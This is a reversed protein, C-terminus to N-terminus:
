STNQSNSNTNLMGSVPIQLPCPVPTLNPLTLPSIYFFVKFYMKFFDTGHIFVLSQLKACWFPICSSQLTKKSLILSRHFVLPILKIPEVQSPTASFIYFPHSRANTHVLTYPQLYLDHNPRTHQLKHVEM